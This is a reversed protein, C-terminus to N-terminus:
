RTTIQQQLDDHFASAPNHPFPLAGDPLSRRMVSAAGTVTNAFLLTQFSEYSNRRSTWYTNAFVALVEEDQTIADRHLYLVGLHACPEGRLLSNGLLVLGLQLSHALLERPHLLSVDFALGLDRVQPVLHAFSVRQIM